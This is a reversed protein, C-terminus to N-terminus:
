VIKNICHCNAPSFDTNFPVSRNENGIDPLLILMWKHYLILHDNPLLWYILAALLVVLTYLPYLKKRQAPTVIEQFPAFRIFISPVHVLACALALFLHDKM